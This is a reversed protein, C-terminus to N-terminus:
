ITPFVKQYWIRIWFIGSSKSRDLYLLLGLPRKHTNYVRNGKFINSQLISRDWLRFQVNTDTRGYLLLTLLQISVESCIMLPIIACITNFPLCQRTRRTSGSLWATRGCRWATNAGAQVLGQLSRRLANQWYLVRSSAGPRSGGGIGKGGWVGKGGMGKSTGKRSGKGGGGGGTGSGRRKIERQHSVPLQMNNLAHRIAAIQSPAGQRIM